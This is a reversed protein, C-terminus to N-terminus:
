EAGIFAVLRKLVRSNKYENSNLLCNQKKEMLLAKDKFLSRFMRDLDSKDSVLFGSSSKGKGIRELNVIANNLAVPLGCLQAEVASITPGFPWCGLDAANYIESLESTPVNEIFRLKSCLENRKTLEILKNRYTKDMPGVVLFLFCKEKFMSLSDIILDIKKSEIVKGTYVFLYNEDTLGLVSRYKKRKVEDKYFVADDAGLLLVQMKHKDFKYQKSLIEASENSIPLFLDVERNVIRSFLFRFSKRYLQSIFSKEQLAYVSHDDVILRFKKKLVWKLLCLQIVQLSTSGHVLIVDPNLTMITRLFNSMLVKGNKEFILKLRILLAGDEHYVGPPILRTKFVSSLHKYTGDKPYNTAPVVMINTLDSYDSLGRCYINEQYSLGSIYSSSVQVFTTKKM